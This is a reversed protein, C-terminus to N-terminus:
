QSASVFGTPISFLTGNDRQVLLTGDRWVPSPTVVGEIYQPLVTGSDGALVPEGGNEEGNYDCMVRVKCGVSIM